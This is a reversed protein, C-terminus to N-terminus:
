LFSSERLSYPTLHPSLQHAQPLMMYHPQLIASPFMKCKPHMWFGWGPSSCSFQSKSSDCFDRLVLRGSTGAGIYLVRGGRRLREAILDITRAIEPMCTRVAPAVESDADNMIGIWFIISTIMLALVVSM